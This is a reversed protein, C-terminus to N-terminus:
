GREPRYVRREFNPALGTWHIVRGPSAVQQLAMAVLIGLADPDWFALPRLAEMKAPLKTVRVHTFLWDATHAMQFYSDTRWEVDPWVDEVIKRGVQNAFVMVVQEYKADVQIDCGSDLEYIRESVSQRRSAQRRQQRNM